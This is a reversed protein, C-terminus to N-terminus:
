TAAYALVELHIVAREGFVPDKIDYILEGPRYRAVVDAADEFWKAGASTKLGLRLNGGRGPLYLVFEPKDGGIVRFATHGGYLSRNFFEAGNHIVFDEAEPHYRLPQSMHGRLNPTQASVLPAAIWVVLALALSLGRSALKLRASSPESTKIQICVM